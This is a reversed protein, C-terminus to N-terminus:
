DEPEPASVREVRRRARLVAEARGQWEFRSRATPVHSPPHEEDPTAVLLVGTAFGEPAEPQAALDALQENLWLYFEVLVRSPGSHAALDDLMELLREYTEVAAQHEALALELPSDEAAVDAGGRRSGATDAPATESREQQRRELLLLGLAEVELERQRMLWARAARIRYADPAGPPLDVEDTAWVTEAESARRRGEALDAEEPEEWQLIGGHAVWKGTAAPATEDAAAGTDSRPGLAGHGNLREVEAPEGWASFDFGDWGTDDDGDRM